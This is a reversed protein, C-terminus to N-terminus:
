KLVRTTKKFFDKRFFYYISRFFLFSMNRRSRLLYKTRLFIFALLIPSKYPLSKKLNVRPFFHKLRSRNRHIRHRRPRPTSRYPGDGMQPDFFHGATGHVRIEVQHSRQQRRSLDPRLVGSCRM